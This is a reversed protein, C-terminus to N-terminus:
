QHDSGSDDVAPPYVVVLQVRKDGLYRQRVVRCEEPAPVVQRPALSTLVEVRLGLKELIARAQRLDRGLLDPLKLGGPNGEGKGRM